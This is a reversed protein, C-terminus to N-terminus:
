ENINEIGKIMMRVTDVKNLNHQATRQGYQINPKNIPLTMVPTKLPQYIPPPLFQYAYLMPNPFIPKRLPWLFNRYDPVIFGNKYYLLNRQQNRLKELRKNCENIAISFDYNFGLISKKNNNDYNNM